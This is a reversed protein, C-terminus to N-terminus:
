GIKEVLYPTGVPVQLRGVAFTDLKDPAKSCGSATHNDTEVRM